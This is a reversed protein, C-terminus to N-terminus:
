DWQLEDIRQQAFAHLDTLELELGGIVASHLITARKQMCMLKTRIRSGFEIVNGRRAPSVWAVNRRFGSPIYFQIIKAVIDAGALGGILASRLTPARKQRCM